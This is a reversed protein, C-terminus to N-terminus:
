KLEKVKNEIMVKYKELHAALGKHIAMEDFAAIKEEPKANVPLHISDFSKQTAIDSKLEKVVEILIRKNPQDPDSEQKEEDPIAFDPTTYPIDETPEAM